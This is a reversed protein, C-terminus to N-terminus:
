KIILLYCYSTSTCWRRSHLLTCFVIWKDLSWENRRSSDCRWIKTTTLFSFKACIIKRLCFSWIFETIWPIGGIWDLFIRFNEETRGTIVFLTIRMRRRKWNKQKQEIRMRLTCLMPGIRIFTPFSRTLCKMFVNSEITRHVQNEYIM